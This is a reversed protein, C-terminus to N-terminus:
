PCFDNSKPDGTNMNGTSWIESGILGSETGIWCIPSEAVGFGNFVSAQNQTSKLLPVIKDQMDFYGGDLWIETLNGYNQWLEKLHNFAINEFQEQTVNIQNPQLPWAHAQHTHVNLYYNNTLSYYFGHGIDYKNMTKSFDDLIDTKIASKEKGVCYTYPDGNPLNVKTPWLLHGCGHKATLIAHKVGVAKM